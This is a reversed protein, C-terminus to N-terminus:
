PMSSAFSRLPLRSARTIYAHAPFEGSAAPMTMAVAAFSLRNGGSLGVIRLSPRKAIQRCNRAAATLIDRSLPKARTQRSL